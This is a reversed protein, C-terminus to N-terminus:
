LSERIAIAKSYLDISLRRHLIPTTRNARGINTLVSPNDPDLCFLVQGSLGSLRQMERMTDRESASLASYGFAMVRQRPRSDVYEAGSRDAAAVRSLDAWDDSWGGDVNITPEFVEGAWARGTDIFTVGSVNFNWRWYRATVPSSLKYLHYGYGDTTNIAIAGSDHAAGTGPTGGDADFEHQVTGSTPFTTDRPFRLAVVDITKNSGFDAQGYATLVTTRHRRGIITDAVNSISLDGSTDSATLVVASADILNVWSLIPVAM